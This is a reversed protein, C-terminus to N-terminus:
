GRSFRPSPSLEDLVAELVTERFWCVLCLDSVSFKAMFSGQFEDGSPQLVIQSLCFTDDCTGVHRKLSRNGATSVLTSSESTARAFDGQLQWDPDFFDGVGIRFDLSIRTFTSANAPVHHRCLTGHFMAISGYDIALPQFDGVDPRSEVWLTARTFESYNTLPMWFNLEGAQHGYEADRHPRKFEESPGPQVRMTPPYQYSFNVAGCNPLLAVLRAKLWPVVVEIVLQEYVGLFVADEMVLKRLQQRAGFSRFIADDTRYRELEKPECEAFSGIGVARGLLSAATGRLDYRDTDFELREQKRLEEPLEGVVQPAAAELLLREGKSRAAASAAAAPAAAAVSAPSGGAAADDASAAM